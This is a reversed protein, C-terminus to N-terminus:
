FIIYKKEIKLSWLKCDKRIMNKHNKLVFQNKAKQHNTLNINQALCYINILYLIVNLLFLYNKM